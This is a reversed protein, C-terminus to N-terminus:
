KGGVLLSPVGVVLSTVGVLLLCISIWKVDMPILTHYLQCCKPILNPDTQSWDPTMQPDNKSWALIIKPASPTLTWRCCIYLCCNKTESPPIWRVCKSHIRSWEGSRERYRQTIFINTILIVNHYNRQQGKQTGLRGLLFLSWGYANILVWDNIAM